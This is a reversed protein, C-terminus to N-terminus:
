FSLSEQLVSIVRRTLDSITKSVEGAGEIADDLSVPGLAVDKLVPHLERMARYVPSVVVERIDNFIIQLTTYLKKATGSNYSCLSLVNLHSSAYLLDQGIEEGPLLLLKQSASYLLILCGTFSTYRDDIGANSSTSCDGSSHNVYVSVWCHARILDDIQLLSAVRASQRAALVCQEEVLKMTELIESDLPIDGLRSKGIDVLCTLYPEIFLGLFLIHLQLLSRKTHWNMTFPDALSLRSLQMPPPLTRHWENLSEFRVQAQVVRPQTATKLDLAIYAALQGLEGVRQHFVGLGDEATSASPCYL